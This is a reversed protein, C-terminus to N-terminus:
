CALGLRRRFKAWFPQEEPLAAAPLLVSFQRLTRIGSGPPWPYEELLRQAAKWPENDLMVEAGVVSVNDLGIFIRLWHPGPALQAEALKRLRAFLGPFAALMTDTNGDGYSLGIAGGTHVEWGRDQGRWHEIEVQDECCHQQGLTEVLVHFSGVCFKILNQGMAAQATEGDSTFPEVLTREGLLPSQAGVYLSVRSSGDGNEGTEDWAYLRLTGGVLLHDDFREVALRHSLTLEHVEDLPTKDM